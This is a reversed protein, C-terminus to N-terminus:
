YHYSQQTTFKKVTGMVEDALHRKLRISFNRISADDIIRYEISDPKANYQYGLYYRGNIVGSKSLLGQVTIGPYKIQSNFENSFSIEIKKRLFKYIQDVKFIQSILNPYRYKQL